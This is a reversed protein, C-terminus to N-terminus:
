PACFFINILKFDLNFFSFGALSGRSTPGFSSLLSNSLLVACLRFACDCVNVRFM